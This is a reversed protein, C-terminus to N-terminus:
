SKCLFVSDFNPSSSKCMVKIELDHANKRCIFISVQEDPNDFALVLVVDGVKLELEDGDTATYEHVAKVQLLFM